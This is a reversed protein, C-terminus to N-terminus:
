DCRCDVLAGVGPCLMYRLPLPFPALLIRRLLLRRLLLRRMDRRRRRGHRLLMRLLMRLLFGQMGRRLLLRRHPFRRKRLTWRRWPCLMQGGRMSLLRLVVLCLILPRGPVCPVQVSHSSIGRLRLCCTSPCSARQNVSVWNSHARAERIVDHHDKAARDHHGPFDSHNSKMIPCQKKAERFDM